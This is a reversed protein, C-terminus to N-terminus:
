KKPNLKDAMQKDTLSIGEQERVKQMLLTGIHGEDLRNLEYNTYEGALPGWLGLKRGINRRIQAEDVDDYGKIAGFVAGGVAGVETGIVIGVGPISGIAAGLGAGYLAYEGAGIGIAALREGTESILYRNHHRNQVCDLHAKRGRNVMRRGFYGLGLFFCAVIFFIIVHLTTKSKVIGNSHDTQTKETAVPCGCNPCVPAKESIEKGCEPCKILAM